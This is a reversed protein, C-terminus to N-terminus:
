VPTPLDDACSEETEPPALSGADIRVVDELMSDM